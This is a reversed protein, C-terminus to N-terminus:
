QSLSWKSRVRWVPFRDNGSSDLTFRPSTTSFTRQKVEDYHVRTNWYYFFVGCGCLGVFRRSYPPFLLMEFMAFLPLLTRTNRPRTTRTILVTIWFTEGLFMLIDGHLSEAQFVSQSDVDVVDAYTDVYKQGFKWVTRHNQLQSTELRKPQASIRSSKEWVSSSFIVFFLFFFAGDIAAACTYINTILHNIIPNRFRKPM